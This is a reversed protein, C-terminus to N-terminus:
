KYAKKDQKVERNVARGRTDQVTVTVTLKNMNTSANAETGVNTPRFHAHTVAAVKFLVRGIAWVCRFRINVLRRVSEGSAASLHIPM